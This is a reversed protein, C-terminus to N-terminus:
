GKRAPRQHAAEEVKYITMVREWVICPNLYGTKVYGLVVRLLRNTLQLLFVISSSRVPPPPPQVNNTRLSAKEM